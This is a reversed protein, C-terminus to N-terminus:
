RARGRPRARGDRLVRELVALYATVARRGRATLKVTTTSARGAGERTVRVLGAEDLTVLHRSLNGASLGCLDRLEPFTRGEPDSVTAIVISLRAPEQITRDLGAYAFTPTAM